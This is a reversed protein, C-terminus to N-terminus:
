NRGTKIFFYVNILNKQYFSM